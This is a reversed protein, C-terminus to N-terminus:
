TRPNSSRDLASDKEPATNPKLNRDFLALTQLEPTEPRPPSPQREHNKAIRRYHKLFSSNSKTSNLTKACAANGNAALPMTTVQSRYHSCDNGCCTLMIAAFRSDGCGSRCVHQIISGSCHSYAFQGHYVVWIGSQMRLQISKGNVRFRRPRPFGLSSLWQVVFQRFPCPPATPFCRGCRLLTSLTAALPAQTPQAM